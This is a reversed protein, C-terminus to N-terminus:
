TNSEGMISEYGQGSCHDGDNDRSYFTNAQPHALDELLYSSGGRRVTGAM